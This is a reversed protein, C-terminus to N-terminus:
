AGTPQAERVKSAGATQEIIKALDPEAGAPTGYLHARLQRGYQEGVWSARAALDEVGLVELVPGCAEAAFQEQEASFVNAWAIYAASRAGEGSFKERARAAAKNTKASVRRAADMVIPALRELESKEPGPEPEVPPVPPVPPPPPVPAGGTDAGEDKMGGGEDKEEVAGGVVDGESDKVVEGTVAEGQGDAVPLWPDKYTSERPLGAQEVLDTLRTSNAIVDAVTGDQIFLEVVKQKFAKDEEDSTSAAALNVPVRLVDGEPGVPPLDLDAREENIKSLGNTTKKVATDVRQTYDGRMLREVRYSIMKGAEIDVMPLLKYTLEQETVCIWPMLGNQVALTMMQELNGWTARGYDGLVFPEVGFIRGTDEISFRRTEVMQSKDNDVTGGPDSKLGSHLIMAKHANDVGAYEQRIQAKFDNVQETTMTKETALKLLVHGGNEYFREAFIESSKALRLNNNFLQIVPYGRMGDYGFGPIHIVQEAPVARWQSSPSSYDYIMQLAYFQRGQYRIPFTRDPPLLYMEGAETDLFAYGNGWIVAHHYLCEWFQQATQLGNPRLNLMRHLPANWERKKAFADTQVTLERPLWALTRAIWRTAAWVGPITMATYENIVAPNDGSPMPDGVTYTSFLYSAGGVTGGIGGAWGSTASTVINARDERTAPVAPWAEQVGGRSLKGQIM